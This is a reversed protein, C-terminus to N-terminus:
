VDTVRRDLPKNREIAVKVIAIVFLLNPAREKMVEAVLKPDYQPM